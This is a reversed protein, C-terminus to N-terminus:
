AVATNTVHATVHVQDDWLLIKSQKATLIVNLGVIEVGTNRFVHEATVTTHFRKINRTRMRSSDADVYVTQIRIRNGRQLNRWEVACVPLLINM